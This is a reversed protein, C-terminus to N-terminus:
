EFTTAQDEVDEVWGQFRQSSVIKTLFKAFFRSEIHRIAPLYYTAVFNGLSIAPASSMVPAISSLLL